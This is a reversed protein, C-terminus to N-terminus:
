KFTTKTLTKLDSTIKELTKGHVSERPLSEKSLFDFFITKGHMIRANEKCGHM